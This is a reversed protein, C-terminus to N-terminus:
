GEKIRVTDGIHPFTDCFAPGLSWNSLDRLHSEFAPNMIYKPQTNGGSSSDESPTGRSRTQSAPTTSTQHSSPPQYLPNRIVCHHAEYPWNLSLTTTYPIFFQDFPMVTQSNVLRDRMRPWPLYTCWLPYPTFLQCPRPQVWEPMLEYNERTPHVQWRMILFMIYVVAVQEPLRSIDPFTRLIDTFLKSLEHSHHERGPEILPDFNPYKPGVLTNGDVGEASRRRRETLFDGLLTDLPCTPPLYRPLTSWAERHPTDSAISRPPDQPSLPTPQTVAIGNQLQLHRQSGDLLFDVGLREDNSHGFPLNPDFNGRQVDYPITPSEGMHWNRSQQGEPSDVAPGSRGTSIQMASISGNYSAADNISTHEGLGPQIPIANREAAAALENLGQTGLLPQIIGIVTALRRKIDENEAQVAEKQRVAQQLDHYPQASELERIRANLSDIQNKTRERIARQAERDNARKRALQEPTLNAVGRSS